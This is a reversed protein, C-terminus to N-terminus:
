TRTEGPEGIYFYRNGFRGAGLASVAQSLRRLALLGLSRPQRAVSWSLANPAPWAVESVSYELTELGVREFFALQGAVTAQLVHYPPMEVPRAARLSRAARLVASFLCPGAELPGQSVLWGGPALLGVLKALVEDPKTLHEVVDGLHIVQAPLSPYSELAEIGHLVPCGTEAAISEVVEAQFEVGVATWGIARAQKLLSGSGCGFDVFCGTARRKLVALLREPQKPDELGVDDTGAGAYAPGYMRALATADPMPDCASSGCRRCELYQYRRGEFLVSIASSGAIEVSGCLPCRL